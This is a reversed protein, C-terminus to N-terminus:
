AGSRQRRLSRVFWFAAIPACITALAAVEWGLLDLVAFWCLAAGGVTAVVFVIISQIRMSAGARSAVVHTSIGAVLVGVTAIWGFLAGVLAAIIALGGLNSQVGSAASWTMPVLVGLVGLVAGSASAFALTSFASRLLWSRRFTWWLESM